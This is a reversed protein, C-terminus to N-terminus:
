CLLMLKEREKWKLDALLLLLCYAHLQMFRTTACLEEPQEGEGVRLCQLCHHLEAIAAVRDDGPWLLGHATAPETAKRAVRTQQLDAVNTGICLALLICSIGAQLGFGTAVGAATHRTFALAQGAQLMHTMRALVLQGLLQAIRLECLIGVVHAHDAEDLRERTCGGYVYTSVSLCVSLFLCLSVRNSVKERKM